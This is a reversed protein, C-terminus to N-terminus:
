IGKKIVKKQHLNHKMTYLYMAITKILTDVIDIDRNQEDKDETDKLNSSQPKVKMFPLIFQMVDKLYDKSRKNKAASGSPTKKYKMCFSNTCKEMEGQM